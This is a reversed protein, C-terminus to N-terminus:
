FKREIEREREGGEMIIIMWKSLNGVLFFSAYSERRDDEGEIRM